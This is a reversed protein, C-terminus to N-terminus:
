DIVSWELLMPSLWHWAISQLLNSQRSLSISTSILSGFATRRERASASTIQALMMNRQEEQAQQRSFEFYSFSLGLRVRFAAVTVFKAAAEKGGAGAPGM